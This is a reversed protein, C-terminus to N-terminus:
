LTRCRLVVLATNSLKVRKSIDSPATVVPTTNSLKVGDSGSKPSSGITKVIEPLVATIGQVVVEHIMTSLAEAVGKGLKEDLASFDM